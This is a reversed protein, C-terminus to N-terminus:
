DDNVMAANLAADETGHWRLRGAGGTDVAWAHTVRGTPSLSSTM